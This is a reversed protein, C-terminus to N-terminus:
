FRLSCFIPVLAPDWQPGANAAILARAQTIPMSQRYPRDSTLADFTDAIALIRAELPIAEGALGDPYGRGDFREHHHRIGGLARRVSHLPRCIEDGIVPHRKILAFEDETLRGPKRLVDDPVGIKGIDHLPGAQAVIDHIPHGPFAAETLSLAYATVRAAHGLTYPDKAELARAMGTLIAQAGDLEAILLSTRLAAAVQLGVLKVLARDTGTFARACLSGILLAGSVHNESLLPLILLAGERSLGSADTGACPLNTAQRMDQVDLSKGERLVWSVMDDMAPVVTVVGDITHLHYGPGEDLPLCLAIHSAPLLWKLQRQLILLLQQVTTAAAVATGIEAAVM